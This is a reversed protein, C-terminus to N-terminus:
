GACAEKAEIADNLRKTLAAGLNRVTEGAEVEARFTCCTEVFRDRGLAKLRAGYVRRKTAPEGTVDLAVDVPDLQMAAWATYNAEKLGDATLPSAEVASRLGGAAPGSPVADATGDTYIETETKTKTKAPARSAIVQSETHGDAIDQSTKRNWRKVNGLKGAESRVASREKRAEHITISEERIAIWAGLAETPIDAEDPQEGDVIWVALAHILWGAVDLPLDHLLRLTIAGLFATELNM